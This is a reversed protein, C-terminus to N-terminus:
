HGPETKTQKIVLSITKLNWGNMWENIMYLTGGKIHTKTWKSNVQKNM